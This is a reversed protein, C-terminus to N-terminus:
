FSEMWPRLDMEHTWADRPQNHLMWYTDAISEPNLIGDESKLAYREPFNDRIFATDIGGDIVVHAVHIGMPALERAMSQAMGRLAFKAAAFAAGQAYGRTSASAGTLIITGRGRAAMRIAAQRCCLYGAYAAMEWIKRFKREELELFPFRANAGINFVCVDVPAVDREVTEFLAVVEAEVRADVGFPRCRGGAAEIEAILPALAEANRRVPCAIYGGRAFRRAVAGGTADGAGIVVAARDIM